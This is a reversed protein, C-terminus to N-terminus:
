QGQGPGMYVPIQTVTPDQNLYQVAPQLREFLKAQGKLDNWQTQLARGAATNSFRLTCTEPQFLRGRCEYTAAHQDVTKDTYFKVYCVFQKGGKVAHFKAVAGDKRMSHDAGRRIELSEYPLCAVKIADVNGKLPAMKGKKQQAATAGRKRVGRTRYSAVSIAFVTVLIFFLFKKYNM